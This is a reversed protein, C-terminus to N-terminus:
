RIARGNLELIRCRKFGLHDVSAVDDMGVLRLHMVVRDQGSSLVAPLHSHQFARLLNPLQSISLQASSTRRSFASGGNLWEVVFKGLSWCRTTGRRERRNRGM